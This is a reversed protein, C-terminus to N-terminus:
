VRFHSLDLLTKICTAPSGKVHCICFSSSLNKKKLAEVFDWCTQKVLFVSSKWGSMNAEKPRLTKWLIERSICINEQFYESECFYEPKQKTKAEHCFLCSCLCSAKWLDSFLAELHKLVKILLKYFFRSKLLECDLSPLQVINGM